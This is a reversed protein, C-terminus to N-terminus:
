INNNKEEIWKSLYKSSQMTHHQLIQGLFHQQRHDNIHKQLHAVHRIFLTAFATTNFRANLAQIGNNQFNTWLTKNKYLNAAKEIFLNVDDEIIGNPLNNGFMGESAINNMACPTGNKMADLVKGKLGAGFPLYCICIKANQMVEDVSNAFGKIYFHEKPNHLQTAKQSVYSGYIHLQVHPLLRRLKPWINNKLKLVAQWNPEHMFNGITVITQREEYSPYTQIESKSIEKVLFPLYYLQSSKIDFKKILVNMEFESILLTLDCRLVSAIERKAFDNYLYNDNFVHGDKFAQHRGKRLCHLDETDLIKLASPCKESVRWGYQEETMFRDFLVVNPNFYSVFRDFSSDNLTITTTEIGLSKLDFANDSKTCATAFTVEYNAKLFLDIVQLMRSGAASSKPEPWVFGIILLKNEM